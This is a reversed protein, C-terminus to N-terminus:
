GKLRIKTSNLVVIISSLSMSIAAFLPIIYGMMALPITLANYILTFILNEKITKFTLKSLKLARLLSNLNDDLLVVDSKEISIQAGSGMCIGVSAMSLAVADNIGDGVMVVPTKSNLRQIIQSKEIPNQSAYFESIGLTNAIKSATLENDGTLMVVKYGDNKLENIIAKSEERLEDELEFKAVVEKDVAFYYSLGSAEFEGFGMYNMFKASGGYINLDGYKASMGLGNHNTIDSLNLQEGLSFDRIAVSVPHISSIALSYLLDQNYEKFKTAKVVKLKSKSLTGTKDFVVCGCKALNEIIRAEKFIIGGRMASGLAILTAVPTALSLACPCAIIIVSVAVIVGKSIEGSNFLWIAFTLIGLLLITLSFKASIQNALLEIKPKKFSAKNLLDIIKSLISSKFIESARYEVSGDVCVAGSIISKGSSITVPLSEGTISSLDFSGVGNLVVGDIMVREGSRVKIIEGPKIDNVDKLEFKDKSKVYIQNVLLTGLSDITDISKKKSIVELFKGIFVFTIIMAVSDFYVEGSRSLMAYVSYFYAISAGACISLDMNAQRNKIALYAGKYFESGTYFLVPSALIFEAFHLIDKIDDSMGSFYGGYLAVAVWMINMTCFLGVLVKSYFERRKNTARTDAEQPNYPIPTYGISNIKRLIEDLKIISDDWKIHAKHTASNLSVEIIGDSSILVKENLWVCASCHIGDIILYIESFGDSNRVYNKYFAESDIKALNPAKFHKQNGLKDYFEGLNHSNLFNYVSMCGNCCFEHGSEDTIIASKDFEGKCHLCIFNGM